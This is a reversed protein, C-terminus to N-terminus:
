HVYFPKHIAICLGKFIFNLDSKALGELLMLARVVKEVLITDKARTSKAIAEIWEKSACETKIMFSLSEDTFAM